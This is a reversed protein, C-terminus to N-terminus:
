HLLYVVLLLVIAIALVSLSIVPSVPMRELFPLRWGDQKDDDKQEDSMEVSGGHREIGTRQARPSSARWGSNPPPMLSGQATVELHDSFQIPSRPDPKILKRLAARREILPTRRPDQGDLDLLDFAFFV